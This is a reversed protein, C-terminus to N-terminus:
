TVDASGVGAASEASIETKVDRLVRDITAFTCGCQENTEPFRLLAYEHIMSHVNPRLRSPPYRVPMQCSRLM